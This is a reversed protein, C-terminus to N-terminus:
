NAKKVDPLAVATKKPKALEENNFLDRVHANRATNVDPRNSELAAKAWDSTKIGNNFSSFINKLKTAGLNFIMDFLAIQIRDPMGDFNDAYGNAKKYIGTLEKYFDDIHEDRQSDIDGDKM